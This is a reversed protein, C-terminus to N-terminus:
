YGSQIKVYSNKFYFKPVFKVSSDFSFCRGSGHGTAEEMDLLPQTITKSKNKFNTIMARINYLLINGPSVSYM